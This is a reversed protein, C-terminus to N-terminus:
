VQFRDFGHGFAFSFISDVSNCRSLCLSQIEDTRIKNPPLFNLLSPSQNGLAYTTWDGLKRLLQSFHYLISSSYKVRGEFSMADLLKLLCEVSSIRVSRLLGFCVASASLEVARRVRSATCLSHSTFLSSIRSSTLSIRILSEPHKISSKLYM